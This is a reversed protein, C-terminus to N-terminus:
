LYYPSKGNLLKIILNRINKLMGLTFTVNETAETWLSFSIAELSYDFKLKLPEGQSLTASTSSNFVGPDLQYYLPCGQYSPYIEIGCEM